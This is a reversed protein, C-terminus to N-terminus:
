ITVIVALEQHLISLDNAEMTLQVIFEKIENQKSAFLLTYKQLNDNLASHIENTISKIQAPISNLLEKAQTTLPLHLKEYKSQIDSIEEQYIKNHKAKETDLMDKAKNYEILFPQINKQFIADMNNLSQHLAGFQNQYNQKVTKTITENAKVECKKRWENLLYARNWGIGTAKIWQGSRIKLNGDSSIDIFDSATYIGVYSLSIVAQKNNSGFIERVEESIRYKSLKAPNQTLNNIDIQEQKQLDYINKQLASKQMEHSEYRKELIDSYLQKIEQDIKAHTTKLIEFMIKIEQVEQIHLGKALKDINAMEVTFHSKLQGIQSKEKSLILAEDSRFNDFLAKLALEYVQQMAYKYKLDNERTRILDELKQQKSKGVINAIIFKLGKLPFPNLYNVIPFTVNIVPSYNIGRSYDFTPFFLLTSPLSRKIVPQPSLNRCWEDASPRDSPNTYGNEFCRKFLEQVSTELKHFNNHPPPIVKFFSRKQGNPFLGNEVMEALGNCKDYPTICSGSFPHIGCLLRYFIVSLSFRDWTENLGDKNIKVGKYYEPPTYEPTVVPAPFLIKNNQTVAVSDMDIISILGNPQIMINEPKMDVLVYNGLNHIHYIAVAINFCLKLRLEIAKPNYFDFKKWEDTLNKPMRVHCLLELKEGKAAPMTFGIFKGNEYVVQNVWIVSHHDDQHLLPLNAALYEIKQEREKTRKDPKYIKVVQKQFSVPNIIRFLDGEGGSAFAKDELLLKTGNKLQVIKSM